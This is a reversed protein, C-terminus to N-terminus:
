AKNRKRYAIAKCVTSCYKQSHGSARVLAQYEKGCEPCSKPERKWKTWGKSRRAHRSHWLRGADSKHWEAAKERAGQTFEVPGRKHNSLAGHESGCICELNPLQNNAPNGDRHHIHCKPPIPGFAIEWVMRHIKKGGRAYYEEGPWLRYLGGDFYQTLPDLVIPDIYESNPVRRIEVRQGDHVFSGAYMEGYQRRQVAGGCTPCQAEHSEARRIAELRM